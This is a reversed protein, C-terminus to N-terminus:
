YEFLHLIQQYIKLNANTITQGSYQSLDFKILTQQYNQMADWNAIWLEENPPMMGSSGTQTTMDDTPYVTTSQGKTLTFGFFLAAITILLKKM